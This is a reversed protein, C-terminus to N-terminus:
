VEDSGDETGVKGTFAALFEAQDLDGGGNADAADFITRFHEISTSNVANRGIQPTSAEHSM